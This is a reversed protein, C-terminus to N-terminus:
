SAQATATANAQATATALTNATAQANSQATSTIQVNVTATADAHMKQPQYVGVFYILGSGALLFLVIIILLITVTLPMRRKKPPPPSTFQQGAQPYGGYQSPGAYQPQNQHLYHNRHKLRTKITQIAEVQDQQHITPLLHVTNGMSTTIQHQDLRRHIPCRINLHKSQQHCLHRRFLIQPLLLIM